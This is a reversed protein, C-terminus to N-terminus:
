TKTAEVAATLAPMLDHCDGVIGFRSFAYIPADADSNIAVIAKSNACGAIHHVAGSIGIAFYLEPAVTRGSTGIQLGPACWGLDCALRSAGVAGGLASALEGAKRFGDPGKMGGGGAVIINATELAASTNADRVREVIRTRIANADLVSNQDVIEGSRAPDPPLAEQSKPLITAVVTATRFSSVERAKGGFCNRTFMLKGDKAAVEICATTVASELRFALRPALDLGVISHGSLVLAPALKRATKAIDPLWADAQYNGLAPHDIRVVRDAGRSPLDKGAEGLGTGLVMATVDHGQEDGLRRALGLIEYGLPAAVGAETEIIVLIGSASM